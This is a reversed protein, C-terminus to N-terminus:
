PMRLASRTSSGYICRSIKSLNATSPVCENLGVVLVGGPVLRREILNAVRLQQEEDFYSFALNRCLVLAFPGEPAAVRLDQQCFVIPLKFEANVHYEADGCQTFSTARLSPEVERLSSARYIGARARALQHADADTAIIELKLSPFRAALCSTWLMSISYPEEGAGSGACWVCLRTEARALAQEALMPLWRRALQEFVSADRFFRSITVHCCADLVEWEAEHTQLYAQYESLNGLQLETVRRAIRKCVQHGVRTYGEARLTLRPM